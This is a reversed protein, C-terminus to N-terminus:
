HLAFVFNNRYVAHLRVPTNSTYSCENKVQVGSPPPPDVVRRRQKLGPFFARHGNILLNPPDLLRDPRKLCSEFGPGEV